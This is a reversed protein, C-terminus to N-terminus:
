IICANEDRQYVYICVCVRAYLLPLLPPPSHVRYRMCLVM